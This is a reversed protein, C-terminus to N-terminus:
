ANGARTLYTGEAGRLVGPYAEFRIQDRVFRFTPDVGSGLGQARAALDYRVGPVSRILAEARAVLDDPKISSGPPIHPALAGAKALDAASPLALSVPQAAQSRSPWAFIGGWEFILVLVLLWCLTKPPTHRM